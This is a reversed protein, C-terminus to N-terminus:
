PISRISRLMISGQPSDNWEMRLSKWKGSDDQSLRNLDIRLTGLPTYTSYEWDKEGDWGMIEELEGEQWLLPAENEGVVYKEENGDKDTFILTMPQGATNHVDTSDIAMDIDLFRGPEPSEGLPITVSAGEGNWRISTLGYSKLSSGGPLKFYKVTNKDPLYSAIQQEAVVPGNCILAEGDEASWVETSEGSHVRIVTDCGYLQSPLSGQSAFGTEGEDVAKKVFEILYQTLFHRQQEAPMLKKVDEENHNLDPETLKTNFYGHNANKLYILEATRTYEKDAICREYIDSGDLMIVDGDMQPIIIGIPVNPLATEPEMYESPAVCAIGVTQMEEPLSEACELADFGGRSHGVLVVKSFDGVKTLDYKFVSEDGKVAQQLLELQKAVIQRTRENGNPEGDEFSYNMAINMGIVLNGEDSLAQTLYNFGQDYRSLSAKEIPHAGHILVVVPCDQGDPIGLVGQVEYPVKRGNSELLYAEGLDYDLLTGSQQNNESNDGEATDSQSEDTTDIETTSPIETSNKENGCGTIGPLCITLVVSLVALKKRYKM